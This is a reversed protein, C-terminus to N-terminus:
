EFPHEEFANTSAPTGAANIHSPSATNDFSPGATNIPSAVINFSNTSNIHKTQREQQLLWEFESRTVQDDQGGNDSLRSEDVETAKKRADVASDKSGAVINDKTRAIGNTQKGAVVPEYNMSITLSDIDFIWNVVFYRVFFGEDAKENFKGLSDMTRAAEILTKNKREAVGNQQPTRAVSFERKIWKMDCLQNM